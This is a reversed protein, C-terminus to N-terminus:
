AKTGAKLYYTRLVYYSSGTFYPARKYNPLGTYDPARKYNPLGTYDLPAAQSHIPQAMVPSTGACGPLMGTPAVMMPPEEPKDTFGIYDAIYDMDTFRSFLYDVTM